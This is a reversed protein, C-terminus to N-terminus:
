TPSVRRGDAVCHATDPGNLAAVKTAADVKDSDIEQFPQGRRNEESGKRRDSRIGFVRRNVVSMPTTSLCIVNKLAFWFRNSSTQYAAGTNRM